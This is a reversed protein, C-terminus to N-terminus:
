MRLPVHTSYWVMGYYVTAAMDINL